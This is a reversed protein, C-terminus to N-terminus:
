IKYGASVADKYFMKVTDLSFNELNKNFNKMKKLIDPTATIIHCGLNNAEIINYAERTSAWLIKCKKYNNFMKISKAIMPKPDRGSDAIRGAFISIICDSKNNLVKKLGSIQNYTFIATINLKIKEKTLQKILKFTKKRKTNMIPIKVYVNKGWSSIKKAQIYMEDLDDSFVEFSIPKKIKKVLEKCFNEYNKIGAKKMLSPNTTFGKIIKKKNLSYINNKDAGDAYISIKM